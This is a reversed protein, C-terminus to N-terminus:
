TKATQTRRFRDIQAKLAAELKAPLRKGRSEARRLIGECAKESLCYKRLHEGSVELIDSLGCVGDESRFQGPCATWEATSRTSFGIPCAIGANRLKGSFTYSTGDETPPSLEQFTRGFCGAPSSSASSGQSSSPLAPDRGAERQWEKASELWPCTPAHREGPSSTSGGTLKLQLQEM